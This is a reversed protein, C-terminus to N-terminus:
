GDLKFYEIYDLGNSHSWVAARLISELQDITAEKYTTGLYNYMTEVADRPVSDYITKRIQVKTASSKANVRKDISKNIRKRLAKSEKDNWPM